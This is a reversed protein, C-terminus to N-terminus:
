ICFPQLHGFLNVGTWPSLPAVRLVPMLGQLSNSQMFAHLSTRIDAKENENLEADFSSNMSSDSPFFTNMVLM